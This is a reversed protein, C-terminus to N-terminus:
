RHHRVFVSLDSGASLERAFIAQLADAQPCRMPGRGREKRWLQHHQNPCAFSRVLVADIESDDPRLGSIEFQPGIASPGRQSQSASPLALVQVLIAAVILTLARSAFTVSAMFVKKSSTEQSQCSCCGTVM